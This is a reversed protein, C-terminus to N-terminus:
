PAKSVFVVLEDEKRDWSLYRLVIDARGDGNLDQVEPLIFRYDDTSPIALEVMPNEALGKRDRLGSYIALTTDNTRYILDKTGDGDFDGDLSAILSTGVDLGEGKAHISIPVDFTRAFDPEEPFAPGEKRQYFFQAEVPISRTVIAKLISWIGVKDMRPLVMDDLGDGDLDVFFALLTVGKARVVRAPTKFAAAPDPGNLFVRTTGSGVHTLAADVRGDHNLDRLVLPMTFDLEFPREADLSFAKVGPIECTFFPARDVNKGESYTRWVNLWPDQALVIEPRTCADFDAILPNAFSYSAMVRSSVQDSGLQVVATPPAPLSRRPTFTAGGLGFYVGFGGRDPVIVDLKGDGDVDRLFEKRRAEDDSPQRLITTAWFLKGPRLDFFPREGPNEPPKLQYSYVGDERLFVLDKKGEGRIDGLDFISARPDIRFSQDPTAPFAGKDRQFFVRVERGMVVVLDKRGDGDLDDIILDTVKGHTQIVTRDFQIPAPLANARPPELLAAAATASALSVLVVGLRAGKTKMVPHPSERGKPANAREARERRIGAASREASRAGRDPAREARTM